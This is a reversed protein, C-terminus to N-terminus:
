PNGVNLSYSVLIESCFETFDSQSRIVATSGSKQPLNLMQRARCSTSRSANPKAERTDSKECDKHQLKPQRSDQTQLLAIKVAKQSHFVNM